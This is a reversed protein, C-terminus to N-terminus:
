ATDETLRTAWEERKPLEAAREALVTRVASVNFLRQRGVCLCPIRGADAEANLWVRPLHLNAALGVINLLEDGM